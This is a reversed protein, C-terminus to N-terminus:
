QVAVTVGAQSQRATAATGGTVTLSVATGASITPPVIANIQILGAVSGGAAGAYSVVAPQGGITVQIPDSVEDSAEAIVGDVLPAALTGMGTAYIVITSGRPAANKTSNITYSGSSASFNLIAGQGTGLGGLTFIGPDEGVMILPFGNSFAAGDWVVVTVISNATGVVASLEFPVVANIQNNSLMILPAVINHNNPPNLTVDWYTFVVEFSNSPNSPDPVSTPFAQVGVVTTLPVTDAVLPGLNQGFISVIEGPSVATQGTSVPDPNTGTQTARLQYSAANTLGTIAMATSSLVTFAAPGGPVQAPNNPPAPNTVFICLTGPIQLLGSSYPITAELVQQSLLTTTLQTPTGVPTGGLVCNGGSQAEITVVSTVFFNQGTITILPSVAPDQVIMTPYISTLSPPGASVVLNVSILFTASGSVTPAITITADYSGPLLAQVTTEDLLVTIPVYSGSLAVGSTTLGTPTSGLPGVRVWAPTKSSGSGSASAATITFPITGGNSAVDIESSTAPDTAPTPPWAGGTTFSFALTGNSSSTASTYNSSPSIVVLSSPPNSVVLTVPITLTMTTPTTSIAISGPYNGPPLGTPNATLTLALPSYGFAPTVTLWAPASSEQAVIVTSSPTGTPLTVTVKSSAPMTASGVQYTFTVSAPSVTISTSSAAWVGSAVFAALSWGLIRATKMTLIDASLCRLKVPRWFRLSPHPPLSARRRMTHQLRVQRWSRLTRTKNTSDSETRVAFPIPFTAASPHANITSLRGSAGSPRIRAGQGAPPDMFLSFM